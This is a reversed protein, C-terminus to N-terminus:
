DKSLRTETIEEDSDVITVVMPLTDDLSWSMKTKFYHFHFIQKTKTEEDKSLETELIEEDSVVITVDMPLTDNLSSSM